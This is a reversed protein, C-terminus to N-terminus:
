SQLDAPDPMKAEVERRIKPVLNPDTRLRSEEEDLVAHFTKRKFEQVVAHDLVNADDLTSVILDIMREAGHLRGWLYDNERYARSFFAGFSNFEIGKLTADAGGSRITPADDPSIRDVKIPDFEDLGEGQLIPLTAIDYFPFGLYSLLMERRAEKPLMTLATSIKEDALTDVARLDRGEALIELAKGPQQIAIHAIESFDQGHMDRTERQLYLSLCDYITDNMAMVAEPPANDADAIGERLRRAMFRLRRVRFGLDQSRFFDIAQETAGGSSNALNSFGHAQLYKWLTERLEFPYVSTAEPHARRLTFVIDEVIGNLKLQGYPGYTFGAMRAAKNQAKNRWQALRKATPRDLFLTRGFLRAVTAEVDSRLNDTVQLMRQVRSSRGEIMELNDRIPQERPIDSIAGFITAFFGPLPSKRGKAKRERAKEATAGGFDPKPDIYVFRRDVERHAPRNKLAEMAQGFPANTLVAGDVLVTDEIVDRAYQQPLTRRLFDERTPWPRDKQELLHDIENVTFPPFAGPFSATARAAFVLEAPDALPTGEGRTASFRITLRHETEVVEPPSHLRMRELHGHFDTVTVFLDLPQGHPILKPGKESAQMADMANYLLRSFGIGSFPPAFWRARILRSLKTKVENRASKSVTREVTGGPRSLAFWVLPQAWFKTFRSFPRADPDLLVDIDACDLWLDTLPELSEGSMLAKALFVGNIGGASTGAIIDPLIRLKLNRQEAILELLARYIGQSGDVAEDNAHFNRSARALRWIEKTIGHMYVALSIGGYCVLALRLEKQRM